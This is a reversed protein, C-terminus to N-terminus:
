CVINDVKMEYTYLKNSHTEQDLPVNYWKEELTFVQTVSEGNAGITIVGKALLGNHSSDATWAQGATAECAAQSAAVVHVGTATVVCSGNDLAGVLVNMQTETNDITTGSASSLNAAGSTATLKGTFEYPVNTTGVGTTPAYATASTQTLIVDYTCQVGAAGSLTINLNCNTTNIATTNSNQSVVMKEAQVEIVCPNSSTSITTTAAPLNASINTVENTDVSAAFYAYGAGFLVLSFLAVAVIPVIVKAMGTGKKEEEM